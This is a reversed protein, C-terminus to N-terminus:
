AEKETPPGRPVPLRGRERARNTSKLTCPVAAALSMPQDQASAELILCVVGSSPCAACGCDCVANGPAEIPNGERDVTITKAGDGSCIVIEFGYASEGAHARGPRAIDMVLGIVALIVFVRCFVKCLSRLCVPIKNPETRSM